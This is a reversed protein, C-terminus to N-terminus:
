VILKEETKEKISLPELLFFTILRLIQRTVWRHWGKGWPACVDGTRAKGASQARIRLLAEQTSTSCENPM